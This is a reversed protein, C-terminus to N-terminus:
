INVTIPKQAQMNHKEDRFVKLKKLQQRALKSKVPMMGKVAHEIIREPNRKLMERYPVQRLGGIWGTYRTYVKRAAKSGTVKVKDANIVIVADGTDVNPTYTPKHKGRLINSIETALRGLVKGSADLLYCQREKAAQDKKIFKTTNKNM